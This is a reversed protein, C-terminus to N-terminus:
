IEVSYERPIGEYDYSEIQSRRSNPLAELRFELNAFKNLIEKARASDQIGPLDVVIRSRGLRQVQPESVGLENVRNRLSTLNQDIARDELEAVRDETLGYVLYFEGGREQEEISYESFDTLAEIASDRLEESRFPISITKDSLWDRGPIFRIRKEILADRMAESASSVVGDLYDDMNVQLLFHAGGFLDLGLNMPVGGLSSLWDPTTRARALAIVVNQEVANLRNEVADKARLQSENDNMRIVVSDDTIEIKKVGAIEGSERLNELSSKIGRADMSSSSVARVELAPDPQFLNPAAYISGLALVFFILFYQWGRFSNIPGSSGGVGM